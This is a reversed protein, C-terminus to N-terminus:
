NDSTNVDGEAELALTDGGSLAKTEGAYAIVLGDKAENLTAVLAAGEAPNESLIFEALPDEVYKQIARHLPRAGFQPDYGKESVFEKGEESLALTFKM